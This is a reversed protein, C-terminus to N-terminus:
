FEKSLIGQEKNTIRKLLAKNARVGLGSFELSIEEDDFGRMM